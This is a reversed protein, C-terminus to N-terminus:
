LRYGGQMMSPYLNKSNTTVANKIFVSKSVANSLHRRMAMSKEKRFNELLEHLSDKFTTFDIKKNILNQGLEFILKYYKEYDVYKTIFLNSM